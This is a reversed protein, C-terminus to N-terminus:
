MNNDIIVWFTDDADAGEGKRQIKGDMRFKRQNMSVDGYHDETKGYIKSTKM